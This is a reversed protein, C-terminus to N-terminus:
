MDQKFLKSVDIDIEKLYGEAKSLTVDDSNFKAFTYAQLLYLSASETWKGAQNKIEAAYLYYYQDLFYTTHHKQAFKIATDLIKFVKDDKKDSSYYKSLNAYLFLALFPYEDLDTQVMMTEVQDFYYGAKELDNNKNIYCVGLECTAVISYISMRTDPLQLIRSYGFIADDFNKTLWMQANTKLFLYHAQQEPEAINEMDDLVELLKEYQYNMSLRDAESLQQEIAVNSDGSIVETPKMGLRTTIRMLIDSSPVSANRELSSITAQTTIGAALETQSFGLEVRKKRLKEGDIM